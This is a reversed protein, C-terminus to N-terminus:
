LTANTFRKSANFMRNAPFVRFLDEGNQRKLEAQWDTETTFRGCDNEGNEIEVHNGLYLLFLVNNCECYLDYM